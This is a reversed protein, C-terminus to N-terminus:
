ESASSMGTVQAGLLPSGPRASPIERRTGHMRILDEAALDETRELIARTRTDLNRMEMKEQDTMARLRLTLIEDIETADCLDGPSESAIRPYDYLIIPSALMTDREAKM